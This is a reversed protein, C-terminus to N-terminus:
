AHASREIPTRKRRKLPRVESREAKRLRERLENLEFIQILLNASNGIFISLKQQFSRMKYVGLQNVSVSWQYPQGM